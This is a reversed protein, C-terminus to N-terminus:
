AVSAMRSFRKKAAKKAKTVDEPSLTAAFSEALKTAKTAKKDSPAILALLLAEVLADYDSKFESRACSDPSGERSRRPLNQIDRLGVAIRCIKTSSLSLTFAPVGEGGQGL